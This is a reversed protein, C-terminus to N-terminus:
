NYDSCIHFDAVKKYKQLSCRLRGGDGTIAHDCSMCDFDNMHALNPNNKKVKEVVEAREKTGRNLMKTM